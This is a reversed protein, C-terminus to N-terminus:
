QSMVNKLSYLEIESSYKHKINEVPVYLYFKGCFIQEKTRKAASAIFVTSSNIEAMEQLYVKIGNTNELESEVLFETKLESYNFWLEDVSAIFVISEKIDTM